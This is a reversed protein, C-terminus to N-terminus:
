IVRLLQLSITYVTTKVGSVVKNEATATPPSIPYLDNAAPTTEVTDEYWSRIANWGAQNTTGEVDKIKVAVRPGTFYHRGSATLQGQPGSEFADVPKVLTLTTTGITITGFNPLDEEESEVEQEKLIVQLAQNADVLTVTASLYAGSQEASPASEFWCAVNTWSQTGPGDGSFAITTGVVGSTATDPDDIRSNRWTDYVDLLDLWESPTLLGSVIWQRATRGERTSSENYGFPQANLRPFDASGITIAM